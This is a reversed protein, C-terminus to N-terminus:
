HFMAPKGIAPVPLQVGFYKAYANNYLQYTAGTMSDLLVGNIFNIWIQDGTRMAAGYNQPHGAYGSNIYKDPQQSALWMISSLDVAGADARNSDIAQYVLGQDGYQDDKAGKLIEQVSKASDVNQLIAITVDKGAAKSAELEKFSKYKGGTPLILGIGETYYPISFAVKQLRAPSITMFQFTIDVKDTLLNPIRADPSKEVLKVKTPDGFIATAIIKGMEIDFGVLKGSADKFHWPVNTSGTGVILHGRDLVKQLTPKGITGNAPASCGTLVSGMTVVALLIVIIKQISKKIKM